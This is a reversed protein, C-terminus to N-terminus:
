TPLEVLVTIGTDRNRTAWIRGGQRRGFPDKTGRREAPPLLGEAGIAVAESLTRVASAWPTDGRAWLSSRARCQFILSAKEM